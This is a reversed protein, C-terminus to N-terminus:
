VYTETTDRLEEAIISSKQLGYEYVLTSEFARIHYFFVLLLKQVAKAPFLTHLDNRQYRQSTKSYRMFFFLEHDGEHGVVFVNRKEATNRVKLELMETVRVSVAATLYVLISLNQNLKGILALVEDVVKYDWVFIKTEQDYRGILRPFNELILQMFRAATDPYKDWFSYNMSEDGKNDKFNSPLTSLFNHDNGVLTHIIQWSDAILKQISSRLLSLHLTKAEIQVWQHDADWILSPEPPSRKIWAYVEAQYNKIM